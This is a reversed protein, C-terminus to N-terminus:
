GIRQKYIDFNLWFKEIAITDVGRLGLATRWVNEEPTNAVECLKDTMYAYAKSLDGCVYERELMAALQFGRVADTQNAQGYCFCMAAVAVDQVSVCTDGKAERHLVWQNPMLRTPYEYRIGGLQLLRGAIFAFNTAVQRRFRDTKTNTPKGRLLHEFQAEQEVVLDDINFSQPHQIKWLLVNPTQNIEAIM